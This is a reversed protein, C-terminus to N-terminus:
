QHLSLLNQAYNKLTPHHHSVGLSDDLPADYQLQVNFGDHTRNVKRRAVVFRERVAGREARAVAGAGAVCPM